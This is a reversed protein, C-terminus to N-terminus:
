ETVPRDPREPLLGVYLGDHEALTIGDVEIVSTLRMRAKGRTQLARLFRDWEAPDFDTVRATFDALVPKRFRIQSEQVVLMPRLGHRRCNYHLLGWGSMIALASISGGFASRRHNLNPALPAALEIHTASVSRVVFGMAAAPPIHEAIYRTLRKEATGASMDDPEAPGSM